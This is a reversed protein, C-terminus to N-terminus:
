KNKTLELYSFPLTLISSNVHAFLKMYSELRDDKKGPNTKLWEIKDKFANFHKTFENLYLDPQRKM